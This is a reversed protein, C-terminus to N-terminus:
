KDCACFVKAFGELYLHVVLFLLYHIMDVADYLTKEKM